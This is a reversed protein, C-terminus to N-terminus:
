GEKLINYAFLPNKKYLNNLIVLDVELGLLKELQSIIAGIEPLDLDKSTHIALDVDSMVLEENRAYTGFLVAFDIFGLKEFFDKLKDVPLMILIVV